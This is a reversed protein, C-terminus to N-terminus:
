NLPSLRTDADLLQHVDSHGCLNSHCYYILSVTYYKSESTKARRSSKQLIVLLESCGLAWILKSIICFSLSFASLVSHAMLYFTSSVCLSINYSCIHHRVLCFPSINTVCCVTKIYCIGWADINHGAFRILLCSMWFIHLLFFYGIGAAVVIFTQSFRSEILKMVAFTPGLSLVEYMTQENLKGGNFAIITLGQVYLYLRLTSNVM